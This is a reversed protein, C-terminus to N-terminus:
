WNWASAMNSPFFHALKQQLQTHTHIFNSVIFKAALMVSLSLSICKSLIVCVCLDQLSTELGDTENAEVLRTVLKSCQKQIQEYQPQHTTATSLHFATSLIPEHSCQSDSKVLTSDYRRLTSHTTNFLHHWWVKLPNPPKVATSMCIWINMRLNEVSCTLNCIVVKTRSM